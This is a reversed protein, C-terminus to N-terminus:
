EFCINRERLSIERAEAYFELFVAKSIRTIDSLAIYDSVLRRYATKLSSFCGLDLPQLVYSIYALLFLLYVNYLYYIIIFDEVIYSSYGDIILLRANM